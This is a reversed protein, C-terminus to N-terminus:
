KIQSHCLVTVPTKGVFLQVGDSYGEERDALEAILLSRLYAIRANYPEERLCDHTEHPDKVLDFYLEKGSQSYWIYKDQKTVIFHMSDQGLTHEGHIYSRSVPHLISQGDVTDPIDAGALELLTPMVDRLEVLDGCQRHLPGILREPGSLFLPVQISGQYPKAKQFMLHDGLMEGHDSVFLIITNDMLQQEVLASIIRGIQHDMHTIAAYYGIRMQRIYEPDSPSSQAHYSHGDREMRAIDNWDGRYAPSLAQNAYLNFYHKPADLPPHPRVFSAMLFFPKSRDRRRLFDLCESAVWNTPHFKEDYIWPRAVWSNCDLGTDVPDAAAGLQNKLWWYYDDAIRQDEYSPTDPRRYAHLYGDHLRVDHFGLNNRLPHVHMKGVCQTYYGANSLEGALTHTYNWPILDEYGVRGTKKQSM